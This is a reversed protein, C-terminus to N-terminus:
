RLRWNSTSQTYQISDLYVEAVLKADAFKNNSWTNSIETYDRWQGRVLVKGPVYLKGLKQETQLRLNYQDRSFLFYVYRRPTVSTTNM